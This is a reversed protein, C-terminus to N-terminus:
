STKEFILKRLFLYIISFSFGIFPFFIFIFKLNPYVPGNSVTPPQIIKYSFPLDSSLLALQRYHGKILDVFSNKIDKDTVTLIQEKLFTIQAEAYEIRSEKLVNDAAKLLDPLLKEALDPKETVIILIVGYQQKKKDELPSIDLLSNVTNKLDLPGFTQQLMTIDYGLVWAKFKDWFKPKPRSYQNKEPDYFPEYFVSDYGLDWLEEATPYAKIFNVLDDLKTSAGSSGTLFTSLSSLSQVQSSSEDPQNSVIISTVSFKPTISFSYIFGILFLLVTWSSIFKINESFLQKVESFIDSIKENQLDLTSM